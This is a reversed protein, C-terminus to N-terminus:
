RVSTLVVWVCLGGSHAPRIALQEIACVTSRCAHAGREARVARDNKRSVVDDATFLQEERLGIERM